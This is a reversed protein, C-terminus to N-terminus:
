RYPSQEKHKSTAHFEEKKKHNQVLKFPYKNETRAFELPITIFLMSIKAINITKIIYRSSSILIKYHDSFIYIM